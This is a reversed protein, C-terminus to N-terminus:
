RESRGRRTGPAAQRPVDELAAVRRLLRGHAKRLADLGQTLAAVEGELEGVRSSRGDTQVIALDPSDLIVALLAARLPEPEGGALWKYVNRRKSEVEGGEREALAKALGRRTVGARELAATLRENYPTSAVTGV